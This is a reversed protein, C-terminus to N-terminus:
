GDHPPEAPLPMPVIAPSLPGEFSSAVAAPGAVLSVEVHPDGLPVAPAIVPAGCVIEPITAPPKAEGGAEDTKKITSDTRRLRRWAAAGLGGLAIGGAGVGVYNLWEPAHEGGDTAPGGTGPPAKTGSKDTTKTGSPSKESPETIAPKEQHPTAEPPTADPKKVPPTVVPPLSPAVSANSLFRTLRGTCAMVKGARPSQYLFHGAPPTGDADQNAVAVPMGCRKSAYAMFRDRQAETAVKQVIVTTPQVLSGDSLYVVAYGGCRFSTGQPPDQRLFSDRSKGSKEPVVAVDFKDACRERVASAFRTRNLPPALDPVLIPKAPPEPPPEKVPPQVVYSGDSFSVTVSDGCAITKRRQNPGASQFLYTGAPPEGRLQETTVSFSNDCLRRVFREFSRRATDERLLPVRIHKKPDLGDRAAQALADLIAQEVPSPKRDAPAQSAAGDSLTVILPGACGISTMRQNPGASQSLYTGRPTEGRM